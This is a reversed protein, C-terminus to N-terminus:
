QWTPMMRYGEEQLGLIATYASAAIEVPAIMEDKAYGRSAASQGCMLVRVGHATLAELLALDPNDVGFRAEYADRSLVAKGASGHLVVALHMNEVDIGARANYNMFRALTNLRPNPASKNEPGVWVDFLVRYEQVPPMYDPEVGDFVEGFRDFVPGTSRSPESAHANTVNLLLILCTLRLM